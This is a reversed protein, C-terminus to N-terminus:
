LLLLISVIVYGETKDLLEHKGMGICVIMKRTSMILSKM